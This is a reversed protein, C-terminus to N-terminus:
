PCLHHSDGSESDFSIPIGGLAGCSLLISFSMYVWDAYNLSNQKINRTKFTNLTIISISGHYCPIKFLHPFTQLMKFTM